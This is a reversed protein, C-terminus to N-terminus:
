FQLENIFTLVKMVFLQIIRIALTFGSQSLDPGKVVYRFSGESWFLCPSRSSVDWEALLGGEGGMNSEEAVWRYNFQGAFCFFFFLYIKKLFGWKHLFWVLMIEFNAFCAGLQLSWGLPKCADTHCYWITNGLSSSRPAPILIRRESGRGVPLGGGWRRGAWLSNAACQQGM